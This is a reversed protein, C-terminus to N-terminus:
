VKSMHNVDADTIVNMRQNLSSFKDEAADFNRVAFTEVAMGVSQWRDWDVAVALTGTRTVPTPKKSRSCVGIWIPADLLQM